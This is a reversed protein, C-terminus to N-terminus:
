GLRFYGRMQIHSFVFFGAFESEERSGLNKNSRKNTTFCSLQNNRGKLSFIISYYQLIM